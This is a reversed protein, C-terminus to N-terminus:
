NGYTGCLGGALLRKFISQARCSDKLIYEPYKRVIDSVGDSFDRGGDLVKTVGDSLKRGGDSVKRVGTVCVANETSSLLDTKKLSQKLILGKWFHAKFYATKAM